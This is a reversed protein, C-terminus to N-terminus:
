GPSQTSGRDSWAHLAVLDVGRRSAEDFAIATAREATPSGDVGVLVPLTAPQPTLPDDHHIVVVPCHAHSVLGSSVSGMLSCGFADIGRSGVVIMEAEKTL